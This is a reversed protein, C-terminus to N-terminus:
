PAAWSSLSKWFFTLFLFKHIATGANGKIKLGELANIGAAAVGTDSEVDVLLNVNINGGEITISKDGSLAVSMYQTNQYNGNITLSANEDATINLPIGSAFAYIVSSTETITNNGKLHVTIDDEETTNSVSYISVRGGNYNNLTLIKNESDYSYTEGNLCTEINSDNNCQKGDIYIYNMKLANVNSIFTLFVILIFLVKKM